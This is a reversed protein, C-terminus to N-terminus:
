NSTNHKAVERLLARVSRVLPKRFGSGPMVLFELKGNGLYQHITVRSVSLVRAAEKVDCVERGQVRRSEIPDLGLKEEVNVRVM